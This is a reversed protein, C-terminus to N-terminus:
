EKASVMSSPFLLFCLCLEIGERGVYNVRKCSVRKCVCVGVGVGLCGFVCVCSVRGQGRLKDERGVCSVRKCSARKRLGYFISFAFLLPLTWTCCLSKAAQTNEGEAWGLGVWCPPIVCAGKRSQGKGPHPKPLSHGKGSNYM